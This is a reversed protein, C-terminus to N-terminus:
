AAGPLDPSEVLCWWGVFDRTALFGVWYGLVSGPGTEETMLPVWDRLVEERTRARGTIFRM